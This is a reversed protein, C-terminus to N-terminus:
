SQFSKSSSSLLKSFRTASLFFIPIGEANFSESICARRISWYFVNILRPIYVEWM